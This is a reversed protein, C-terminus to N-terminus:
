MHPHEEKMDQDQSCPMNESLEQHSNASSDNLEHQM